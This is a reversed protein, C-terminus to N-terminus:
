CFANIKMLACWFLFHPLPLRDRSFSSFLFFIRRRFAFLTNIIIIIIITNATITNTIFTNRTYRTYDGRKKYAYSSISFLWFCCSFSIFLSFFSLACATPPLAVIGDFLCCRIVVLLLRILHLCTWVGKAHLEIISFFFLQSKERGKYNIPDIKHEITNTKCSFIRLQLQKLLPISYNNKRRQTTSNVHASRTM